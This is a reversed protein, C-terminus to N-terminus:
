VPRMWSTPAEQSDAAAQEAAIEGRTPLGLRDLVDHPMGQRALEDRQRAGAERGAERCLRLIEQALHEGGYRLERPDIHIEMPLGTETARVTVTRARNAASAVTAPPPSPESTM